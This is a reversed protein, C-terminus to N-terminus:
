KKCFDRANRMIHSLCRHLVPVHLRVAAGNGTVICYYQKLLSDLSMKCFSNSIAQMLVVSGDWMFMVPRDLSSRGYLKVCDQGFWNLFDTLSSTTHESAVYTAGSIASGGRTSNRVVLEYIYFPSQNPFTRKMVGGTADIYM